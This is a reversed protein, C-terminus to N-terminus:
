YLKKCNGCRYKTERMKLSILILVVGICFPALLFGALLMIIGGTTFKQKPGSYITSGCTPCRIGRIMPQQQRTFM